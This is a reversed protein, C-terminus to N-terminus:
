ASYSPAPKRADRLGLIAFFSLLTIVISVWLAASYDGTFQLSAGGAFTGVAGGIQNFVYASGLIAGIARKGFFEAAFAGIVAIAGYGLLGFAAVFVILSLPGPLLVVLLATLGRAAFMILLVNRRGLWDSLAGTAVTGLIGMAGLLSLGTAAIGQDYGQELLYTPLHIFVLNMILGNSCLAFAILWFTPQRVADRYSMGPMSTAPERGDGRKKRLPKEHGPAPRLLLLVAPVLLCLAFGVAMMAYRWGQVAIMLMLLPPLAVMAVKTGSTAVGLAVGRHREFWSAVISTASVPSVAAYAVSSMLGM